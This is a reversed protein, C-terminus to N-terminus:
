ENNTEPSKIYVDPMWVNVIKNSPAKIKVTCSNNVISFTPYNPSSILGRDEIIDGGIIEKECINYEKIVTSAVLFIFNM